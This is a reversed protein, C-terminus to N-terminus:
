IKVSDLIGREKVIITEASATARDGLVIAMFRGDVCLGRRNM